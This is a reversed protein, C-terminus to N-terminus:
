PQQYLHHQQDQLAFKEHLPSWRDAFSKLVASSDQQKSKATQHEKKAAAFVAAKSAAEVINQAKVISQDQFSCKSYLAFYKFSNSSKINILIIKIINLFIEFNTTTSLIKSDNEAIIKEDEEDKNFFVDAPTKRNYNNSIFNQVPESKKSKILIKRKM